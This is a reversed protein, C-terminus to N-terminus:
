RRVNIYVFVFYLIGRPVFGCALLNDVDDLTMANVPHDTVGSLLRTKGGKAFFLVNKKQKHGFVTDVRRCCFM